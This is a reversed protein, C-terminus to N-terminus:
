ASAEVHWSFPGARPTLGAREPYHQPIPAYRDALQGGSVFGVRFRFPDRALEM